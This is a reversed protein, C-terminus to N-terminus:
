KPDSSRPKDWPLISRDIPLVHVRKLAEKEESTLPRVALSPKVWRDYLVRAAMELSLPKGGAPVTARRRESPRATSRPKLWMGEHRDGLLNPSVSTRGVATRQTVQLRLPLEALVGVLRKWDDGPFAELALVPEQGDARTPVGDQLWSNIAFAVSAIDPVDRRVKVAVIAARAVDIIVTAIPMTIGEEGDQVPLDVAVHDVVFDAGAAFSDLPLRSGLAKKIARRLPTASPLEIGKRSALLHAHEVIRAVMDDSREKVADAIVAAQQATLTARRKRPKGSGVLDAPQKKQRWIRVLLHLTSESIRLDSAIEKAVAATPNAIYTEIGRIRARVENRKHPAVLSLDHEDFLM